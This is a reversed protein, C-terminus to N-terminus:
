TDSRRDMQHHLWAKAARWDLMVTEQSVELIEATEEVSFGGFFRLEVVQSQRSHLKALDTLARDLVLLGGLREDSTAIGEDLPVAIWGGGRKASGKARAHDVLVHRMVKAAVSFFHTRNKWRKGSDGVMRVFAEHILATAQLTHSPNQRQMHRRALKRLEAYVVPMLQDLAAPNGKKWDNLLETIQPSPHM